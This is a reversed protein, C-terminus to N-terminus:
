HRVGGVGAWSESSRGREAGISAEQWAAVTGNASLRQSLNQSQVSTVTVTMAPRPSAAKDTEPKTQAHAMSIGLALVVVSWHQKTCGWTQSVQM